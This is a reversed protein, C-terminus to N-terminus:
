LLFFIEFDTTQQVYVKVLRGGRIEAKKEEYVYRGGGKGM